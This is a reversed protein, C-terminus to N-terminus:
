RREEFFSKKMTKRSSAKKMERGGLFIRSEDASSLKKMDERETKRRFFLEKEKRLPPKKV